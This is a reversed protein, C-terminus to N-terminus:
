LPACKFVRTARVPTVLDDQGTGNFPSIRETAAASAAARRHHGVKTSRPDFGRSIDEARREIERGFRLSAAERASDPFGSARILRRRQRIKQESLLFIAEERERERTRTCTHVSNCLLPAYAGPSISHSFSPSMPLALTPGCSLWQFLPLPLSSVSSVPSPSQWYRLVSIYNEALDNNSPILLYM